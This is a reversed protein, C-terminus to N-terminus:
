KDKGDRAMKRFTKALNYRKSGKPCSESGFKDGTCVGETGRREIDKEAGQIWDKDEENLDEEGLVRAIEEQIIKALQKKSVKMEKEETLDEGEPSEGLAKLLHDLVDGELGKVMDLLPVEIQREVYNLDRPDEITDELKSMLFRSLATTIVDWDQWEKPDDKDFDLLDDLNDSDLEKAREIESAVSEESWPHNEALKHSEEKIIKKLYKKDIKIM